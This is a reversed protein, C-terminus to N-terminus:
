PEPPFLGFMQEARRIRQRREHNLDFASILARGVATLAVVKYGSWALHDQWRDARPNFVPVLTGTLPDPAHLQDSKKLNCGPCALALNTLDDGGGHSSPVIHEVHFTAGQLCQHMRCYECQEGAREHVQRTTESWSM